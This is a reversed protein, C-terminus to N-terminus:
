TIVNRSKTGFRNAAGQKGILGKSGKGTFCADPPGCGKGVGPAWARAPSM